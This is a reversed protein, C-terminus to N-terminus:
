HRRRAGVRPEDSQSQRVVNQIHTRIGLGRAMEALTGAVDLAQARGEMACPGAILVFPLDNGVVVEGITVRHQTM